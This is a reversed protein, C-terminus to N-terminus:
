NEMEHTYEIGLKTVAELADEPTRTVMIILKDDATLRDELVMLIHSQYTEGNMENFGRVFSLQAFLNPHMLYSKMHEQEEM